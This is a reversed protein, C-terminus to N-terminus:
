RCFIGNKQEFFTAGDWENRTVSLFPCSAKVFHGYAPDFFLM